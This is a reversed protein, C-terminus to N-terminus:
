ELRSEMALWVTGSVPHTKVLLRKSQSMARTQHRRRAPPIGTCHRAPTVRCPAPHMHMHGRNEREKCLGPLGGGQQGQGLGGIGESPGEKVGDYILNGGRIGQVPSEDFCLRVLADTPGSTAGSWQNEAGGTLMCGHELPTHSAHGPLPTPVARLGWAWQATVGHGGLGHTTFGPGGPERCAGQPRLGGLSPEWATGERRSFLNM